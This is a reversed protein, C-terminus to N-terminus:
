QGQEAAEAESQSEEEAGYAQRKYEEIEDETRPAVEATNSSCGPMSFACLSFAFAFLVCNLLRM